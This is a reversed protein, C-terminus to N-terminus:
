TALLGTPSADGCTLVALFNRTVGPVDRNTRVIKDSEPCRSGRLRRVLEGYVSTLGEATAEWPYASARDVAGAGLRAALEPDRLIEAFSGTAKVQFERRGQELREPDSDLVKVGGDARLLLPNLWRRSSPLYPSPEIPPLPRPAHLPSVAVMGAGRAAAWGTVTRLDVLDGIRWSARSRCTPLQVTLLWRHLNAPLHCRGPSVILRTVPGGDLPRLDHYGVPLDPPLTTEARLETGDELSLECPGLLPEARGAGVVWVPHAADPPVADPDDGGGM